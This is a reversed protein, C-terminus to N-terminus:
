KRSRFRRRLRPALAAAAGFLALLLTPNEPSTACGGLTGAFAPSCVGMLAVAAVTTVTLTGRFSEM